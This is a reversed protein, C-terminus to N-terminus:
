LILIFIYEGRGKIYIHVFIWWKTDSELCSSAAAMHLSNRKLVYNIKSMVVVSFQLTAVTM